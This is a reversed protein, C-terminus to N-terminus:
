PKIIIKGLMPTAPTPTPGPPTPTRNFVYAAYPQPTLHYKTVAPGVSCTNAICGFQPFAQSAVSPTRFVIVLRTGVDSSWNVTDGNAAYDDATGDPNTVADRCSNTGNPSVYIDKTGQGLCGSGSSYDGIPGVRPTPTQSPAPPATTPVPTPSTGGGGGGSRGIAFGIVGGVVLAGVVLGIGSSPKGNSTAM